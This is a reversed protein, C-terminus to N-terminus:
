RCVKVIPHPSPSVVVETCSQYSAPRTIARYLATGSSAILVLLLIILLAQIVNGPNLKAIM